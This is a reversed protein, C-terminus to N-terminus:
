AKNAGPETLPPPPPPNFKWGGGTAGPEGDGSLFQATRGLLVEVMANQEMVQVGAHKALAAVACGGDVRWACGEDCAGVFLPCFPKQEGKKRWRM